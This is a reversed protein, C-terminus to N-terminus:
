YKENIEAIKKQSAVRITYSADKTFLNLLEKADELSIYEEGLISIFYGQVNPSSDMTMRILEGKYLESPESKYLLFSCAIANKRVVFYEDRLMELVVLAIFLPVKNSSILNYEIYKQISYSFAKRETESKDKYDVCTMFINKETDINLLSNITNIYYMSSDVSAKTISFEGRLEIERLSFFDTLTTPINQEAKKYEVLLTVLAELYPEKVELSADSSLVIVAHPLFNNNLALMLKESHFEKVIEIIDSLPADRYGFEVGSKMSKFRKKLVAIKDNLVEIAKEDSGLEIEILNIQDNSLEEKMLYYLEIFDDYRQKLLNIIFFPSGGNELIGVIKRKLINGLKEMDSYDCDFLEIDSLVKTVKSYNLMFLKESEMISILIDLVFGYNIRKVNYIVADLLINVQGYRELQQTYQSLFTTAIRFLSNNMYQGLSKVILCKMVKSNICYKEETLEWLQEVNIALIDSVDNWYADSTETFMKVEGAVIMLRLAQYILNKDEYLEGYELLLDIMRRRAILLHTSSGIIFSTYLYNEVCQLSEILTNGFRVTEASLTRITFREKELTEFAEKLFRDGVPYYVFDDLDIIKDQYKSDRPNLKSQINRSDILIDGLLWSPVKKTNALEFATDLDLLASKLNGSFYKQISQHRLRLVEVINESLSFKYYIDAIEKESFFSDGSHLWRLLRIGTENGNLAEDKRAYKSLLFLDILAERNNGFYTLSSKELISDELFKETSVFIEDTEQNFSDHTFRYYNILNNIVDNFVIEDIGEFSKIAKFTVRDKSILRKKFDEVFNTPEGTDYFYILLPKKKELAQEIEQSTGSRIDNKILIVVVDVDTIKWTFFQTSPIESAHEEITFPELYECELLKNKVSERISMWTTGREDGMASSIFVKLKFKSLNAM